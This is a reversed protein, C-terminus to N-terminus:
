TALRPSEAVRMLDLACLEIRRRWRDKRKAILFKGRVAWVLAEVVLEQSQLKPVGRRYPADGGKAASETAANAEALIAQWPRLSKLNAFTKTSTQPGSSRLLKSVGQGRAAAVGTEVDPGQVHRWFETQMESPLVSLDEPFHASTTDEEGISGADANRSAAAECRYADLMPVGLDALKRKRGPVLGSSSQWVLLVAAAAVLDPPYDLFTTGLPSRPLGRCVSLHSRNDGREQAKCSEGSAKHRKAYWRRHRARERGATLLASLTKTKGVTMTAEANEALSVLECAAHLEAKGALGVIELLQPLLACADFRDLELGLEILDLAVADIPRRLNRTEQPRRVRRSKADKAFDLRGKKHWPSIKDRWRFCRWHRAFLYPISARLARLRDKLPNQMWLTVTCPLVPAGCNVLTMWLLALVLSEDPTPPVMQKLASTAEDDARSRMVGTTARAFHGPVQYAQHLYRFWLAGMASAAADGPVQALRAAARALGPLQAQLRAAAAFPRLEPPVYKEKSVKPKKEKKTSVVSILTQDRRNALDVEDDAEDRYRTQLAGCDGCIFRGDEEIIDGSECKFCEKPGKRGGHAAKSGAYAM